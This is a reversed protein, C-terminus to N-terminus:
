FIISIAHVFLLIILKLNHRKYIKGQMFISIRQQEFTISAAQLVPSCVVRIDDLSTLYQLAAPLEQMEDCIM